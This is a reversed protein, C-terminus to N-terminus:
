QSETQHSSKFQSRASGLRACLDAHVCRIWSALNKRKCSAGNRNSGFDKIINCKCFFFANGSLQVESLGLSQNCRDHSYYIVRSHYTHLRANLTGIVVSFVEFASTTSPPLPLPLVPKERAWITKTVRMSKVCIDKLACQRGQCKLM